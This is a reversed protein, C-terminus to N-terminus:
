KGEKYSSLIGRVRITLGYVKQEAIIVDLPVQNYGKAILADTGYKEKEYIRTTPIKEKSLKTKINPGEEIIFNINHKVKSGELWNATFTKKSKDLFRMFFVLSLADFSKGKVEIKQNETRKDSYLYYGKDPYFVSTENNKWNGESTNKKVLVTTFDNTTVWAEFIDNVKYVANAFGKSYVRAYLHYTMNGNVNSIALIKAELVGVKGSLNFQPVEAIIDYTIKEGINFKQNEAFISSSCLLIYFFIIFYKM